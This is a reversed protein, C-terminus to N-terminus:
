NAVVDVEFTTLVPNLFMATIDCDHVIWTEDFDHTIEDDGVWSEPIFVYAFILGM